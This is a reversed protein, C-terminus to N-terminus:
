QTLGQTALEIWRDLWLQQPDDWFSPCAHIVTNGYRILIGTVYGRYVTVSCGNIEQQQLLLRFRGRCRSREYNLFDRALQRALFASGTEHYDVILIGDCRSGDEATIRASERWQMNVPALATSWQGATNYSGFAADDLAYEGGPIMDRISPFPTDPHAKTFPQTGAASLTFLVLVLWVGPLLVRAAKAALQVPAWKRWPKPRTLPDGQSLRKQYGRLRLLALAPELVMLLFWLCLCATSWLGVTILSRWFYGLPFGRASLWFVALIALSILNLRLAKKVSRIAIAQVAPESHLEPADPDECRFIYFMRYRTLYEWGMRAFLETMDEDPESADAHFGPATKGAPALRYTVRRPTERLFTFVGAMVADKELLLGELALEELWTQIAEVDYANCPCIRCARRPTKHTM